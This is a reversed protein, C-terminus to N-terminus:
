IKREGSGNGEKLPAWCRCTNMALRRNGCLRQFGIHPFESAPITVFDMSNRLLWIDSIVMQFKSICNCVTAFLQYSPLSPLLFHRGLSANLFRTPSRRLHVQLGPPNHRSLSPAHSPRAEPWHANADLSETILKRIKELQDWKQYSMTMLSALGLSGSNLADSRCNEAWTYWLLAVPDVPWSWNKERVLRFLTPHGTTCGPAWAKSTCSPTGPQDGAASPTSPTSAPSCRRWPLRPSPPTPLKANQSTRVYESGEFMKTSGHQFALPNRRASNGLRTQCTGRYFCADNGSKSWIQPPRTWSLAHYLQQLQVPANWHMGTEQCTGLKRHCVWSYRLFEFFLTFLCYYVAKQIWLLEMDLLGNETGSIPPSTTFGNFGNRLPRGRPTGLCSRDECSNSSRSASMAACVAPHFEKSFLDVLSTELKSPESHNPDVNRPNWPPLVRLVHHRPAMSNEANPATFESCCCFGDTAISPAVAVLSARPLVASIRPRRPAHHSGPNRLKSPIETSQIKLPIKHAVSPIHCSIVIGVFM